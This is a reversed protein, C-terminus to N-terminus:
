CFLGKKLNFTSQENKYSKNLYSNFVVSIRIGHDVQKYFAKM